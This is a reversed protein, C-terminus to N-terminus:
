YGVEAANPMAGLATNILQNIHDDDPVEVLGAAMEAIETKDADTLVYDNGPDGKLGGAEKLEEFEKQLQAWVPLAPDTSPDGSPDTANQIMGLDAWLTPIAIQNQADVGYFGVRLRHGTDAVCEAPIVISSGANLVDKTVVGAFVATKTLGDWDASYQVEITAGIIGKPINSLETIAARTGDVSIKCIVM